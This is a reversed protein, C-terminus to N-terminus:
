LTNFEHILHTVGHLKKGQRICRKIVIESLANNKYIKVKKVAHIGKSHGTSVCKNYGNPYLTNLSEILNKEKQRLEERDIVEEIIEVTFSDVGFKNIARSVLQCGVEDTHRSMCVHEKVRIEVKRTTSGIYVKGDPFKLQYIVGM